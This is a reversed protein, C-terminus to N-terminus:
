YEQLLFMRLDQVTKITYTPRCAEMEAQTGCGYLVGAVDLNLTRAAEVDYHKDGIMLMEAKDAGTLKTMADIADKLIETKRSRTNDMNSGYVMDFLDLVGFGKLVREATLTPKSTAVALHRGAEKLDKLLPIIGDFSPHKDSENPIYYARFVEVAETAAETTIGFEQEFMERLPAGVHVRLAADSREPLNIQRITHQMGRLIGAESDVLTGDLDFFLCSYKRSM